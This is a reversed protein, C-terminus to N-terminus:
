FPNPTRLTIYSVCGHLFVTKFNDTKRRVHGSEPTFRVHGRAGCMDAKPGFRFDIVGEPGVAKAPLM